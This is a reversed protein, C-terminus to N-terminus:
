LRALQATVLEPQVKELTVARGDRAKYDGGVDRGSGFYEEEHVDYDRVTCLM